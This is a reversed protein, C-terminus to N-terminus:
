AKQAEVMVTAGRGALSEAIALPYAAAVAGLYFVHKIWALPLREARGNGRHRVSRSVPDLAPFLSSAFAPANDRLNFHRTRCVRFGSDALLREMSHSSYNIVHRPVDLGSWRVGCLKSQWSEINPVQLVIRGGPHLIRRVEALLMHPDTVHEMVHFLTVLDFAGNAFSADQLHAAVIVDIDSEAKAIGSADWSSDFGLVQYGGRKKLLGLLTGSGCGVDLLRAQRGHMPLAEATKTIFAVHDRM